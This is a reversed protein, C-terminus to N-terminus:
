HQTTNDLLAKELFTEDIEATRLIGILDAYKPVLVVEYLTDSLKHIQAKACCAVEYLPDQTTKLDRRLSYLNQRLMDARGYSNTHLRVGTEAAKAWANALLTTYVKKSMRYM